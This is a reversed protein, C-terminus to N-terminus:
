VVKYRGKNAPQNSTQLKMLEERILRIVENKARNVALESTGEIALYLKREGLEPNYRNGEPIFTGRVTIGAESYEAIQAIAEKSTVRWRAPQPFDNIELEIEFRKFTNETGNNAEEQEESRDDEAPRYNFKANIMEARREALSKASDVQSMQILNTEGKLFAETNSTAKSALNLNIRSAAKKALEVKDINSITAAATQQQNNNTANSSSTNNVTSTTSITTSAPASSSSTTTAASQSTAAAAAISQQQKLKKPALMNEIEQNLDAEPDEDDSDQLGLAVKQYKRKENVLQAEQENFKFGKGSFGSGGAVVTRGLAEQRSKYNNFLAVLKENIANGSSELAKNIDYAYRGQDPTIFTYAYGKNGARGTRGCRHVYDEYHNPCDYNIVVICHKIDLGRAAVSTAVLVSVKNAKFDSITSDRDMQDIGGHLALCTYMAHMLEKLLFDANEQKDVFVIASKQGEADLHKGLVELLKRFKDEEEIVIVNQEIDKCVISRGGVAIEIPRNLIRRALTEM